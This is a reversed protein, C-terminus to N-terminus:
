DRGSRMYEDILHDYRGLNMNIITKIREGDILKGRTILLIKDYYEHLSENEILNKNERVSERYGKPVERRLHGVRWNPDYVAPLKSLLPDGLCYTDNLYLDSNYYVLIGAANELIGGTFNMQRLEETAQYNWTDEVCMRGTRKLAVLNNYFGTTNSYNEREDSISSSYKHGYMYQSGITSGFTFSWVVAAMVAAGFFARIKRVSDFYDKERNMMMTCSLVSVFLMVTFHRGMMFDGGIRLVYLGYLVIGASTLIYKEKRVILTIVIFILPVILVVIDDLATYWAYLVGHKFYELSSIGTGIKVYATNPVPFGYYFLSFLEWLIFPSLGAFTIGVAQLFTTKERKLLFVWVIMPIFMLVLDMRVLAIGAFTFALALLQKKEFKDHTYYQWLFLASILFMLSNELGSTTYSVFARSGILALFGTMVQEKSRCMKYAFIYYAIASYVVDLLMSTFFMERTFFYPIAVSLTYLPSTTACVREGINYVFGNGEILHKVMVYGHYSDDSQWGLLVATIIFGIQTFFRSKDLDTKLEIHFRNKAPKSM